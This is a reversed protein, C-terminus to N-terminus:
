KAEALKLIDAGAAPLPKAPVVVASTKFDTKVTVVAPLQTGNPLKWGIGAYEDLTYDKVKHGAKRLEGWAPDQMVKTFAPQAPGNQRVVQFYYPGKTGAPPPPDTPATHEVVVEVGPPVIVKVKVPEDAFLVSSLVLGCLLASGYLRTKKM